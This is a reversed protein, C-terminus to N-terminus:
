GFHSPGKISVVSGECKLNWTEIPEPPMAKWVRVITDRERHLIKVNSPLVVWHDRICLTDLNHGLNERFEFQAAENDLDSNYHTM